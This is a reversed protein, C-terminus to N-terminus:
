WFESTRAKRIYVWGLATVSNYFDRNHLKVYVVPHLFDQAMMVDGMVLVGCGKVHYCTMYHSTSGLGMRPSSMLELCLTCPVRTTPRSLLPARSGGDVTGQVKADTRVRFGM